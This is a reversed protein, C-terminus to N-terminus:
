RWMSRLLSRIRFGISDKRDPLEIGMHKAFGAIDADTSIKPRGRAWSAFRQEFDPGAAHAVMPHHRAVIGARKRLLATEAALVADDDFGPPPAAGAVLARVLAAQQEGLAHVAALSAGQPVCQETAM